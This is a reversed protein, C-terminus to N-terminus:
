PKRIQSRRYLDVLDHDIDIILVRQKRHQVRALIRYPPSKLTFYARGFVTGLSKFSKSTDSIDYAQIKEMVDQTIQQRALPDLKFLQEEARKDYVIKLDLAAM